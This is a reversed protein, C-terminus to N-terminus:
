TIPSIVNVKKTTERSFAAPISHTAEVVSLSASSVASPLFIESNRNTRNLFYQHNVLPEKVYHCFFPINGQIYWDMESNKITFVTQVRNLNFSKYLTYQLINGNYCPNCSLIDLIKLFQLQLINGNYCPNCSRKKPSLM